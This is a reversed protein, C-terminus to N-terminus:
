IIVSGKNLFAKVTFSYFIQGFQIKSFIFGKLDLWQISTGMNVAMNQSLRFCSVINVHCGTHILRLPMWGSLLFYAVTGLIPFTRFITILKPSAQLTLIFLKFVDCFFFYKELRSELSIDRLRDLWRSPCTSRSVSGCVSARRSFCISNPM